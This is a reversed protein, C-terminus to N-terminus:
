YFKKIFQSFFNHFKFNKLLIKVSLYHKTTNVDPESDTEIEPTQDKSKEHSFFSESAKTNKRSGNPTTVRSNDFLESTPEKNVSSISIPGKAKSLALQMVNIMESVNKDLRDM